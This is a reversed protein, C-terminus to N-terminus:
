SKIRVSKVTTFKSYVRVTNVIRYSRVKYYYTQKKLNKDTFKLTSGSAISKKLSYKGNKSTARYIQYGNANLVKNWSINAKKKGASVKVSPTAVTPIPKNDGFVQVWYYNYKKPDNSMKTFGIGITTYKPNLMNERHKPSNMWANVVNKPTKQGAAINEAKIKLSLSYYPKGNPRTHSFYNTIEGKRIIAASNLTSDFSLPKANVKAREDNVLKLVEKEFASNTNDAAFITSMSVLSLVMLLMTLIVFYKKQIMNKGKLLYNYLIM